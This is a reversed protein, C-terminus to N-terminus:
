RRQSAGEIQSCLETSGNCCNKNRGGRKENQEVEKGGNESPKLGQASNQCGM